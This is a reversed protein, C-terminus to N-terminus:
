NSNNSGQKARFQEIKAKIASNSGDEGFGNLNMIENLLKTYAEVKLNDIEDDTVEESMSKKIMDRNMKMQEESSMKTVDKEGFAMMDKVKLPVIELEVDDIVVKKPSGLLNGLKSM